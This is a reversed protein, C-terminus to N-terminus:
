IIRDLGKKLQAVQEPTYHNEATILINLKFTEIRGVYDKMAESALTCFDDFSLKIKQIIKDIDTPDQKRYRELKSKILDHEKLSNVHLYKGSFITLFDQSDFDVTMCISVIDVPVKLKAAAKQFSKADFRPAVDIDTTGRDIIDLVLLSAGGMIIVEMRKTLQGDIKQVCIAFRL